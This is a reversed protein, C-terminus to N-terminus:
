RRARLRARARRAQKQARAADPTLTAGDPLVKPAPAVVGASSGPKELVPLRLQLDSVTVPAQLNSPRGYPADNGLLELKVTHGPAFRWGQPHLQWVQQLPSASVDPRYLGRAVLTENGDPGVDLLRAAVQDNALPATLRAVITPSGMLTFGDAGVPLRYNAVGQQDTGPATACAGGGAIPDFAQGITPGGPSVITQAAADGLRVEGPALAAWTRAYYPGGSPASKPCTTTLAEVGRLPEVKKDGLLHSAFWDAQRRALEAQDAAKNQGRQHGHDSFFLSIDAKPFADRTRNYFRLAEDVPFLDDTWGNSILLPAPGDGVPIYYSSHHTRLEDLMDVVLPNSDTFVSDGAMTLAYWKTLDADPDQGPLAYNSSALGTAYLGSIFTLKPVGVRDGYPNSALYDLNRGNPALAYALDTWPIDPAAAAIRMPLGRKPSTWPILRGDPLMVRDKLAALAMSMGGGYSGGTAGVRRGDILGEDALQGILTQADRVEYRTDLLHNYGNACNGTVRTTSQGGCSDGWGRDSMSFAAYGKRAWGALTSVGIKSGGWGHYIGLLPPLGDQAASAGAPLVLNVDITTGDFTNALGSCTTLGDDGTTCPVKGDFASTPAAQAAAPALLALCALLTTPAAFRM